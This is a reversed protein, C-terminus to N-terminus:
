KLYPCLYPSLLGVPVLVKPVSEFMVMVMTCFEESSTDVQSSAHELVKLILTLAVKHAVHTSSSSTAKRRIIILLGTNKVLIWANYHYGHIMDAHVSIVMIKVRPVLVLVSKKIKIPLL